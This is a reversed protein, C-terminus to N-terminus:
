RVGGERPALIIDATGGLMFVPHASTKKTEQPVRKTGLYSSQARARARAVCHRINYYLLLLSFIQRCDGSKGNLNLRVRRRVVISDVLPLDYVDSFPNM